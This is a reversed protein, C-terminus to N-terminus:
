AGAKRKLRRALCSAFGRPMLGSTHFRVQQDKLIASQNRSKASPTQVRQLIIQSSIPSNANRETLNVVVKIIPLMIIEAVEVFLLVKIEVVAVVVVVGSGDNEIANNNTSKSSVSKNNDRSNSHSDNECVSLCARVCMCLWVCTRVCM